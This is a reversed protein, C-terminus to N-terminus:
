DNDKTNINILTSKFFCHFIRLILQSLRKFAFDSFNCIHLKQCWSLQMPQLFQKVSSNGNNIKPSSHLQTVLNSSQHTQIVQCTFCHWILSAGLFTNLIEKSEMSTVQLDYVTINVQINCYLTIVIFFVLQFNIILKKSKQKM